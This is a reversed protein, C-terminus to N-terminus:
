SWEAAPFPRREYPQRYRLSVDLIRIAHGPHHLSRAVEVLRVRAALGGLGVFAFLLSWHPTVKDPNLSPMVLWFIDLLNMLLAWAAVLSLRTPSRKLTARCCFRRLSHLLSRHHAVIGVVAWGGQMRVIYFPMEEPLNAIWILMMQSFGIYAWFCTFAFMLKGLNHIHEVGVYDGFLIGAGRWRSWSSWFRGRHELLQGRLLLGRLHDLYWTPNLSMLWDFSAFTIVLALM